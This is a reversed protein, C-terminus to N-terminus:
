ALTQTLNKTAVLIYLSLVLVTPLPNLLGVKSVPKTLHSEGTVYLKRKIYGIYLNFYNEETKLYLYINLLCNLTWIEHIELLM